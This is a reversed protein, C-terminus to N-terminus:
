GLVQSDLASLRLAATIQDAMTQGPPLEPAPQGVGLWSAAIEEIEGEHARAVGFGQINVALVGFLQMEGQRNRRTHVSPPCTMAQRVQDETASERLIGMMVPGHEDKYVHIDAAGFASNDYHDALEQDTLPRQGRPRAHQLGVTLQGVGISTGDDLPMFGKNFKTATFDNKRLVIPSRSGISALHPENWPALHATFATYVNGDDATVEFFEPGTARAFKKKVFAAAPYRIMGSAAIESRGEGEEFGAGTYRLYATDFAPIAVMTAAAIVVREYVTRIRWRNAQMTEYDLQEMDVDVVSGEENVVEHRVEYSKVDSGDISVGRLADEDLLKAAYAGADTDAFEFKAFVEGNQQVSAAIIRGVPVANDHSGIDKFVARLHIPMQRFEYSEIFRGDSTEGIRAIVGEGTHRALKQM